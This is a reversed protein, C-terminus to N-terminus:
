GDASEQKPEATQEATDAPETVQRECVRCVGRPPQMAGCCEVFGLNAVFERFFDASRRAEEKSPPANKDPM